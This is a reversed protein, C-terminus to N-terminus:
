AGFTCATSFAIESSACVDWVISRLDDLTTVGVGM